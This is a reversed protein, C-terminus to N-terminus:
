GVAHQEDWVDCKALHSIHPCYPHERAAAYAPKRKERKQFLNVYLLFVVSYAPKPLKLFPEQPLTEMPPQFRFSDLAPHRTTHFLASRIGTSACM